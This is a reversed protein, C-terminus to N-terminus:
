IETKGHGETKIEIAEGAQIERNDLMLIPKDREKREKGGERHRERERSMIQRLDSILKPSYEFIILVFIQNSHLKCFM